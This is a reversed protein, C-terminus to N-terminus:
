RKNDNLMKIVEALASAKEEPEAPESDSLGKFGKSVIIMADKKSFGGSDRLFTEFERVDMNSGSKVDLIVAETNAAMTVFSIEFLNVKKIHRVGDQQIEAGGKPITFGISLGDIAPVGGVGKALAYVEKARAIDEVFLKGSVLLGDETEDATFLQGIPESMNHNFLIKIKAAPIDKLSEIFAGKVMIDDHRDLNGFTSALATFEGSEQLSKVELFLSKREM